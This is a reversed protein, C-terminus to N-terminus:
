SVGQPQYCFAGGFLACLDVGGLDLGFGLAAAAPVQPPAPPTPAAAGTAPAQHPRKTYLYSGLGALGALALLLKKNM